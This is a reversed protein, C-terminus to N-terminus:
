HVTPTQCRPCIHSSRQAVIIREIATKCRPCAKGTRRFVNLQDANRGPRNNASYFNGKGRGLSTGLNNIGMRLVRRIARHLAAADRFDLACSISLPHLGATWLAEDVYINGLGAIFGQDLLLPKLQRRHGQLMTFLRKGTFSASLPEPGLQNLVTQPENTLVVRGFKRTDQFRLESTKDLELIVHEHPNRQIAPDALTLRGTMRLHILMTLAESLDVVIYKGRRTIRQITSGRVAHCFHRSDMGAITKPWHVQAATIKCGVIHAKNLHDVVTQVEPLEPMCGNWERQHQTKQSKGCRNGLAM